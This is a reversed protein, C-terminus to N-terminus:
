ASPDAQPAAEPAAPPSAGGNEFRDVVVAGIADGMVNTSTRFMDLFADVAFIFPLYYVPLHVATAVLVMTVLGADPVAAAGVSALVATIFLILIAGGVLTIGVDDMGGYMQILFIVAVGEYLATGDMNVTAGVPLTFNAVKKSVGLKETVCRVTVPLTAASSRTAFAVAWAERIGRLFRWPSLRGFVACLTLLVCVHIAIGGIVTGCYWGLSEFVEPGHTAIISAMLCFVAFPSIAMLWSTIKLVVLNMAQFFDVVPQAPAGLAACALALLLAFFIIGLSNRAGLAHFPNDIMPKVIDDVFMEFTTRDRKAVVRTYKDGRGEGERQELWGLYEPRAEDAQKGTQEAFEARRATLEASRKARMSEAAGREGPQIMLVLILGIAVALTTTGIYYGLTRFGIRGADRFSPISTVGAVISALILPAIIMKLLGIFVTKGFFDLWQITTTFGDSSKDEVQALLLGVVVGLAMLVFILSHLRPRM